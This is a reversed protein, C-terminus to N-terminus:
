SLGHDLQSNNSETLSLLEITKVLNSAGIQAMNINYYVFIKNNFTAYFLCPVNGREHDLTYM